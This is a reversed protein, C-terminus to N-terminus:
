TAYSLEKLNSMLYSSVENNYEQETSYEILTSTKYDYTFYLDSIKKYDNKYFKMFLLVYIKQAADSVFTYDFSSSSIYSPVQKFL